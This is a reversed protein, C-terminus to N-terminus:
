PQREEHNTRIHFIGSFQACDAGEGDRIDCALFAISRGLRVLRARAEVSGPAAPRLYNATVSISGLRPHGGLADFLAFGMATDAMAFLVAGHVVGFINCVQPGANLTSMCAGDRTYAFDIGLTDCVADRTPPLHKM